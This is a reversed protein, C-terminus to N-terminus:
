CEDNVGNLVRDRYDELQHRQLYSEVEQTWRTGEGLTARSHTSAYLYRTDYLNILTQNVGDIKCKSKQAATRVGPCYPGSPRSRYCFGTGAIRQAGSIFTPNRQLRQRYVIIVM